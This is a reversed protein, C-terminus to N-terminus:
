RRRRWRWCRRRRRRLVVVVGRGPRRCRRLRRREGVGLHHVAVEEEIGLGDLFPHAPTRTEGRWAGGATRGHRGIRARTHLRSVDGGIRKPAARADSPPGKKEELFRRASLLAAAAAAIAIAAARAVFPDLPSRFPHARQQHQVPKDAGGGQRGAERGTLGVYHFGQGAQVTPTARFPRTRAGVKFTSRPAM